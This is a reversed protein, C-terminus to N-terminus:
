LNRKWSYYNGQIVCFGWTTFMTLGLGFCHFFFIYYLLLNLKEYIHTHDVLKYVIDKWVYTVLTVLLPSFIVMLGCVMEEKQSKWKWKWKSTNLINTHIKKKEKCRVALYKVDSSHSVMKWVFLRFFPIQITSKNYSYCFNM